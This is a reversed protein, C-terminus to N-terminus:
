NCLVAVRARANRTATAKIAFEPHAFKSRLGDKSSGLSVLSMDNM